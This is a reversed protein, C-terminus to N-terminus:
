PGASQGGPRGVARLIRDGAALLGRFKREGVHPPEPPLDKARALEELEVLLARAEGILVEGLGAQRMASSLEDLSVTASPRSLASALPSQPAGQSPRGLLHLGELLGHELELKYALVPTLLNRDKAAFYRVRGAFGAVTEAPPLSVAREYSSRRPLASSAALLLLAAVILTSARVASPPLRAQAIRRLGARVAALPDAAAVSPYRGTLETEPTAIFLRGGQSLYRVLNRALERNGRLELMNNILMSPDGLAVLRGKGVAGTLVVAGRQDDLSFVAELEPHHLVQPHNTVVALVNESLPHHIRPKAILLNPNGRLRREAPVAHPASRSVGFAALLSAGAGFDDAIALRGGEVMFASLDVRPPAHRPYLVLLGDTPRLSALDIREQARVEIGTQQAIALLESAGNWGRNDPGYDSADARAAGSQTLLEGLCLIHM